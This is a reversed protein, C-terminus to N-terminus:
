KHRKSVILLILAMLLLVVSLGVPILIPSLVWWWSWTIQKLLKLAIFLLTLLWLFNICKGGKIEESM